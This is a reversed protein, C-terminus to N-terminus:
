KTSSSKPFPVAVTADLVILVRSGKGKLDTAHKLASQVNGYPSISIAKLIEPPLDTVAFIRARKLLEAIKVAKHYGFRYGEEASKLVNKGSALLDYFGRNGIGDSCRSVLIVIGDDNLALKVNDIAKQSQYLDLDMPRGAVSIVIDAKAEVPTVYVGKAREVADMFSQIINGSSAFSVQHESNLVLQISFIDAYRDFIDLAEMFDEHVPNGDLSLIASRRDLALSHNMEISEFGALGPLLFKRGGTFGAFYHPEVSGVVIIGDAAFLHQSLSLKTGRRTQGISKLSSYEKSDHFVANGGYPPVPGGLLRLMEEPYPVRHAGTAVVTTVDKGKLDLNKLVAATPTPRTHDNIVVLIKKKNAVFSALDAFAAPRSLSKAICAEDAPTKRPSVIEVPTDEDVEMRMSGPGYPIKIKM